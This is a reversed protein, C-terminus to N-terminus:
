TVYREPDLDLIEHWITPSTLATEAISAYYEPDSSPTCRARSNIEQRCRSLAVKIQNATGNRLVEMDRAAQGLVAAALRKAPDYENHKM